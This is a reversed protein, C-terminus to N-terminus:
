SKLARHGLYWFEAVLEKKGVAVRMEQIRINHGATTVKDVKDEEDSLYSM